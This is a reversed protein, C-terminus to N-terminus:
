QKEENVGDMIEAKNRETKGERKRYKQKTRDKREQSTKKENKSIEKNKTNMNGHMASLIKLLQGVLLLM